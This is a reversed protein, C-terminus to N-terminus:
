PSDTLHQTHAVVLNITVLVLPILIISFQTMEAQICFIVSNCYETNMIYVDHKDHFKM